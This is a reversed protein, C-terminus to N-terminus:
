GREEGLRGVWYPPIWHIASGSWSIKKYPGLYVVYFYGKPFAKIYEALQSIAQQRIRDTSKVEVAVDFTPFHAVFDLEKSQKQHSKWSTLRDATKLHFVLEQAVSAELLRSLLAADSKGHVPRSRNLFHNTIGVDWLYKKSSFGPKTSFTKMEPALRFVFHWDEAAELLSPLITRYAPSDTSILSSRKTMDGTHRAIAEFTAHMLRGYQTRTDGLVESVYRDADQWFFSLLTQFYDYLAETDNRCRIAEPHGGTTLYEFYKSLAQEHIVKPLDNRLDFSRLDDLLAHDGIGELYEYFSFPRCILKTIRGAPSVIKKDRHRKFLAGMVSGSLIIPTSKWEEAMQMLLGYLYPSRQAEDFILPSSPDFRFHRKLQLSLEDFTKAERVQITEPTEDTLTIMTPQIPRIKEQAQLEQRIATTKGTQRVGELILIKQPTKLYLEIEKGLLHRRIYNM